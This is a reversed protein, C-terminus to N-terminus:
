DLQSQPFDFDDKNIKCHNEKNSCASLTIDGSHMFVSICSRVYVQHRDSTLYCLVM